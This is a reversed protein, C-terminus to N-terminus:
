PIVEFLVLELSNKKLFNFYESFRIKSYSFKVKRDEDVNHEEFVGLSSEIYKREHESIGCFVRETSAAPSDSGVFLFIFSWIIAAAGFFYFVSRWGAADILTGSIPYSIVTGFQAGAYTITGSSFPFFDNNSYLDILSIRNKRM